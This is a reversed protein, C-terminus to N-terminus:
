ESMQSGLPGSTELVWFNPNQEKVEGIQDGM